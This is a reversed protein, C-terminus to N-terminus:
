PSTKRVNFNTCLVTNIDEGFNGDIWIVGETDAGKHNGFVENKLCVAIRLAYNQLSKALIGIINRITPRCSLLDNQIAAATFNNPVVWFGVNYITYQTDHVTCQAQRRSRPNM